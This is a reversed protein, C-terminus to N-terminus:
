GIIQLEKPAHNLVECGTETVLVLDEIRVQANPYANQIQQALSKSVSWHGMCFKGTLILIKVTNGGKGM